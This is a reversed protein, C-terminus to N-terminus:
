GVLCTPIQLGLSELEGVLGATVIGRLAEPSDHQVPAAKIVGGLANVAEMARPTWADVWGQIVSRNARYPVSEGNPLDSPALLMRVLEVMANRFRARDREASTLITPTITDGHLPAFRRLFRSLFFESVTPDFILAIVVAIEVWDPTELLAEIFQRTPVLAPDDAWTALGLGDLYTPIEAVLHLSLGAIDQQHRARDVSAFVLAMSLTDSLAERVCRSLAIFLGSEACAWAEYYPGLVDRCWHSCLDAFSGNVEATRMTRTIANEEEAQLAVYDRQWMSLPDRFETWDPHAVATSAHSYIGEGDRRLVYWGSTDFQRPDSQARCIAVEYESLWRGKPKITTIERVSHFPGLPAGRRREGRPADSGGSSV